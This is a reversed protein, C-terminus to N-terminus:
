KYDNIAKKLRDLGDQIMETPSAINMRIFHQGDGGYVDGPTVILGTDQRIFDTLEDVDETIQSVDFWLLYTAEGEVWKIDPINEALFDLVLKRNALVKQKLQQLWEHGKTYAAITGPVAVLNPEALEESNLGRSVQARLNSDPVIVTSAHFAAVNFTKSPSVAVVVNKLYKDELGFVPNYGDKNFTIDGHIEDSFLKIDYKLCLGAIKTLEEVTWIKGVPNHPNCLIMMNTLPDSLKEELDNFDIVYQHSEKLYVLDNSVVHRGNNVISNYFVNYVPAQVLVNDGLSTLRRVASSISPVVGTAFIMWDEKPRVGHETEYWDAVAKRYEDPIEEYGFLGMAVKEQLAKVIEPATPFDMDAITMPLENKGVDWKASNGARKKNLTEFDYKM